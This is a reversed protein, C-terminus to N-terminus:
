TSFITTWLYPVQQSFVCVHWALILAVMFEICLHWASPKRLRLEYALRYRQSQIAYSERAAIESYFTAYFSLIVCMGLQSHPLIFVRTISFNAPTPKAFPRFCVQM